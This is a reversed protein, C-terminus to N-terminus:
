EHGTSTNDNTSADPLADLSNVSSNSIPDWGITVKSGEDLIPELKAGKRAAAVTEPTDRALYWHIVVSSSEDDFKDIPKGRPFERLFAIFRTGTIRMDKSRLLGFSPSDSTIVLTLINDSPRTGVIPEGVVQMEVIYKIDREKSDLTITNVRTRLVSHAAQGRSVNVDNPDTTTPPLGVSSPDISDDFLSRIRGEWPTLENPTTSNNKSCGATNFSAVLLPGITLLCLALSRRSLASLIARSPSFIRM